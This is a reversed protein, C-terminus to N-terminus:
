ISLSSQLRGAAGDVYGEVHVEHDPMPHSRKLLFNSPDSTASIVRRVPERAFIFVVTDIISHVGTSLLRRPLSDSVNPSNVPVVIQQVVRHKRPDTQFNVMLQFNSWIISLYLMGMDRLFRRWYSPIFEHAYAWLGTDKCVRHTLKTYETHVIGDNTVDLMTFLAHATHFTASSAVSM